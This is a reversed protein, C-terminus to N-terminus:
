VSPGHMPPYSTCDSEMGMTPAVEIGFLLAFCERTCINSPSRQPSTERLTSEDHCPNSCAAGHDADEKSKAGKLAAAEEKELASAAGSKGRSTSGFMPMTTELVTYFSERFGIRTVVTQTSLTGEELLQQLSPTGSIARYISTQTSPAATGVCKDSSSEM